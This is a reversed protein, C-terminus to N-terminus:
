PLKPIETRYTVGKPACKCANSISVTDNGSMNHYFGNTEGNFYMERGVGRGYIDPVLNESPITVPAKIKSPNISIPLGFNLGNITKKEKDTLNNRSTKNNETALKEDIVVSKNDKKRMLLYVAGATLAVLGVLTSTKM